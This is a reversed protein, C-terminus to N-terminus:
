PFNPYNPSAIWCSQFKGFVDLISESFGSMDQFFAGLEGRGFQGVLGGDWLTWPARRRRRGLLATFFRNFKYIYIYIRIYIYIYLFVYILLYISLYIFLYIYIYINYKHIGSFTPSSLWGGCLQKTAFLVRRCM